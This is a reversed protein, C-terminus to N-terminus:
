SGPCLPQTPICRPSSEADAAGFVLVRIVGDVARQVAGAPKVPPAVAAIQQGGAPKVPEKAPPEKALEERRARALAGYFQTDGFQRLFEDLVAISTTNQVAGWAQAV